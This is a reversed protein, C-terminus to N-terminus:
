RSPEIDLRRLIEARVEGAKGLSGYGPTELRNGSKLHLVVAHTDESADWNISRIETRAIDDGTIIDTRERWPSVRRLHLRGNRFSWFKQDGFVASVFIPVGVSYAGALILGFFITSLSFSQFAHRFEWTPVVICFLGAAALFVRLPIPASDHIRFEEDQSDRKTM